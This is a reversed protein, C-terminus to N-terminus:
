LSRESATFIAEAMERLLTLAATLRSAATTRDLGLDRAFQAVTEDRLIVAAVVQQHPTSLRDFLARATKKLDYELERRPFSGPVDTSSTPLPETAPNRGERRRHNSALGSALSVLKAQISEPLGEAASTDWLETFADHVLDSEVAEAAGRSRVVCRLTEFYTDYIDPYLARFTRVESPTLRSRRGLLAKVDERTETEPSWAPAPTRAEQHPKRPSM